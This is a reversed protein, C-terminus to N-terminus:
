PRGKDAAASKAAELETVGRRAAVRQEDTLKLWDQAVKADLRLAERFQELATAVLSADRTQRWRRFVYYAFEYRYLAKSPYTVCANWYQQRVADFGHRGSKEMVMALHLQFLAQGPLMACTTRLSEEAKKWYDQELGTGAHSRALERYAGGLGAYV